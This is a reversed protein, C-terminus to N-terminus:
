SRSVLLLQNSYGQAAALSFGAAAWAPGGLLAVIAFVMAGWLALLTLGLAASM